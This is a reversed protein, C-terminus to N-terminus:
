SKGQEDGVIVTVMRDLSLHKQFVATIEESTLSDFHGLYRDLYDTGLNFFAIQNVIGHIGANSDLGLAFGGRINNRALNVEEETPGNEIFDKLVRRLVIIAEDAQDMRTQFGAFFPGKAARTHFTSYSSYALGRKVRIEEMIRSGFGSGGLIHNGLRLAYFDPHGGEILTQGIRVHAQESPFHVRITQPADSPHVEPVQSAKKGAIVATSIRNAIAMMKKETIAGVATIYMNAFGVYTQHFNRLDKVTMAKLSEETGIADLAYPHGEYIAQRFTRGTIHGPNENQTRVRLLRRKRLLEMQDEPFTPKSLILILMDLAKELYREDTLSRLNVNIAGHGGGSGISAGLNELTETIEDINMDGAGRRLMTGMMSATGPMEGDHIAGARFRVHIDLMPPEPSHVFYVPVENSATWLQIKPLAQVQVAVTLCFVASCAGLSTHRLLM